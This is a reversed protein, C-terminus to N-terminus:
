GGKLTQPYPCQGKINNGPALKILVSVSVNTTRSLYAEKVVVLM